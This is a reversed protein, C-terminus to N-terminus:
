FSRQSMQELIAILAKNAGGLAYAAELANQSHRDARKRAGEIGYLSVYTCKNASSDLGTPKGIHQTDATADLIDDIIQFAMGIAQGLEQALKRQQRSPQWFELGMTIAATLLAGTKNRHIFNLTEASLSQGESEIDTMQGGILRLSDSATALDRILACALEPQERYEHPLIKFALTLLADGALIATAEDFAMHCTPQGRRLDSNDVAPLDDHILTYTHLYEIAMAAHLPNAIPTYLESCALLLLPRIRKGGACVSHHMARHLRQPRVDCDPLGDLLAQDIRTKDSDLKDTQLSM